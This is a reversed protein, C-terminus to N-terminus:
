SWFEDFSYLDYVYVFARAIRGDRIGCLIVENWELQRDRRTARAGYSLVAQHVGRSMDEGFLEFSEGCLDGRLWLFRGIGEVGRHAGALQSHGPVFLAADDAIAGRLFGAEGTRFAELLPKLM